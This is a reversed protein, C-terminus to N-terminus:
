IFICCITKSKQYIKEIITGALFHTKVVTKFSHKWFYIKYKFTVVDNVKKSSLSQFDIDKNSM